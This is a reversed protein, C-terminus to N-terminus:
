HDLQVEHRWAEISNRLRTLMKTALEVGDTIETMCFWTFERNIVHALEPSTNEILWKLDNVVRTSRKQQESRRAVELLEEWGEVLSIQDVDTDLIRASRCAKFLQAWTLTKIHRRIINFIKSLKRTKAKEIDYRYVKLYGLVVMDRNTMM